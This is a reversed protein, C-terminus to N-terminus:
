RKEKNQVSAVELIEIIAEFDAAEGTLRNQKYMYARWEPLKDMLDRAMLLPTVGALNTKLALGPFANLILQISTREGFRVATHLATNKEDATVKNVDPNYNLIIAVCASSRGSMASHLASRGSHDQADIDSIPALLQTLEADGADAVLMLATQGKFDVIKAQEPWHQILLKVAERRNNHDIEADRLSAQSVSRLGAKSGQIGNKVTHLLKLWILLVSDCRADKFNLTRLKKEHRSMWSILGGWDGNGIIGFTELLVTNLIEQTLRARREVGPYPHYLDRWFFTECEVAADAITMAGQPFMDYLLMNRYYLEHNNPVFGELAIKTAFGDRAIEGRAGGFNRESCSRLALRFDHTAGEFDNKLLRHKARFRVLPAKWEEYGDLSAEAENLLREVRQQVDKCRRLPTGDLLYGLELVSVGVLQGPSRAVERMRQITLSQIKASLDKTQAFQSLVWYSTEAKIVRWPSSRLIRQSLKILRGDENNETQLFKLRRKIVIESNSKIPVFDELPDDKQLCIFRRTLRKALDLCSTGVKSPVISVLLDDKDLPTLQAEFWANQTAESTAQDAASITLNYINQFLPILQLLKNAAPDACTPSIANGCLTKLIRTYGSQALRAVRLRHRITKAAPVAYRIALHHVLRHQEELSASGSLILELRQATMPIQQQLAPLTLGKFLIFSRVVQMQETLPLNKDCYFVGAFKLPVDDPFLQEIKQASQPKTNARWNKLTPVLSADRNERVEKKGLVESLGQLSTEGMLDLLWDIVQTVPLTVTEKAISWEPLFWFQGGPMGADIPAGRQVGALAWFALRRAVGPVYSYALLHWLVQQTSANATWTRLELAKHFDIWEKCNGIADERAQADMELSDFIEDLLIRTMDRHRALTMEQDIFRQKKAGFNTTNGLGQHVELLLHEFSPILAM